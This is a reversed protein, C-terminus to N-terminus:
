APATARRVRRKLLAQYIAVLVLTVLLYFLIIASVRQDTFNANAILLAIGPHRTAATAALVSKEHPDPGALFHAGAIAVVGILLIAVSTGDGLQAQIAPWAAAIMPITALLLLAMSIKYIWPAVASALKPVLAHVALGVALPAFVAGLVTKAIDRPAIAVDAGYIRSLIAVTLPVIVIALLAFAVYLGYVYEKRGGLKLGKGPVLPPVPALAMLMVGAAAPPHLPLLWVVVAAAVPVVVSVAILARLLLRPRALVYLADHMTADLGVCLVLAALGGAFLLPILQQLVDM